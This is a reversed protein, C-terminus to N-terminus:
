SLRLLTRKMHALNSRAVESNCEAQKGTLLNDEETNRSVNGPNISVSELKCPKLSTDAEQVL